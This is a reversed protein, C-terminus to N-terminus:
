VEEVEAIVDLKTVYHVLFKEGRVELADAGFDTPTGYSLALKHAALAHDGDLNYDLMFRHKDMLVLANFDGHEDVYELAEDYNMPGRETLDAFNTTM